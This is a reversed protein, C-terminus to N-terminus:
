AAPAESPLERIRSAQFGLVTFISALGLAISLLYTSAGFRRAGELWEGYAQATAPDIRGGLLQVAVLVHAIVAAVIIMMAMAMLAIFLKAIAPMRLTQVRRHAAEQVTGGGSRLVGLIRAIAFSIAAFVTAFGLFMAAPVLQGLAAITPAPGGSAILSARAISLALAVPFAMIAMGLMPAWLAAGLRQPVNPGVARDTRFVDFDNRIRTPTM